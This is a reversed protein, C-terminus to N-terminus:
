KVARLQSFRVAKRVQRGAILFLLGSKENSLGCNLFAHQKERKVARLQSFRAAKGMQREAVALFRRIHTWGASRNCIRARIM